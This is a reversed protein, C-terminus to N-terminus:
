SPKTGTCNWIFLGFALPSFFMCSSTLEQACVYKIFDDIKEASLGEVYGKGDKFTARVLDRVFKEPCETPKKVTWMYERAAGDVMRMKFTPDIKDLASRIRVVVEAAREM